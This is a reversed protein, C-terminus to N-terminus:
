AAVAALRYSGNGGGVGVAFVHRRPRTTKHKKHMLM